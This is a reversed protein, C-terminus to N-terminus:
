KSRERRGKVRTKPAAPAYGPILAKVKLEWAAAQAPDAKLGLGGDRYAHMLMVAAAPYDQQAASLAHTRALELDQKVGEGKAYMQGLGFQGAANGQAAAKTYWALAEDDEESKDLIDGLRAQAPAYGQEAAKRWLTLSAILDGRAFEKEALESDEAPGALAVAGTALSLLAAAAMGALAGRRRTTSKM